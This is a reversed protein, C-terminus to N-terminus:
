RDYPFEDANYIKLAIFVLCAIFILVTLVAPLIVPLRAFRSKEGSTAVSDNDPKSSKQVDETTRKGDAKDNEARAKQNDSDRKLRIYHLYERVFSKKALVNYAFLPGRKLSDSSTMKLRITSIERVTQFISPLDNQCFIRVPEGKGNELSINGCSCDCKAKGFIGVIKFTVKHYPVSKLKWLCMVEKRPQTAHLPVLVTGSTEM